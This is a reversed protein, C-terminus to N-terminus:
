RRSTSTHVGTSSCQQLFGHLYLYEGGEQQKSMRGMREGGKDGGGVEERADRGRRREERGPVTDCCIELQSQERKRWKRVTHRLTQSWGCIM